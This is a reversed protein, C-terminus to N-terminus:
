EEDGAGGRGNAQQRHHGGLDLRQHLLDQVVVDTPSPSGPSWQWVAGGGRDAVEQRGVGATVLSFHLPNETPIKEQLPKRVVLPVFHQRCNGVSPWGNMQGALAGMPPITLLRETSYM